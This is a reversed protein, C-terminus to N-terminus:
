GNQDEPIKPVERSIIKCVDNYIIVPGSPDTTMQVIQTNLDLNEAKWRPLELILKLKCETAELLGELEKIREFPAKRLKEEAEYKEASKNRRVAYTDPHHQKCYGDKVAKRSCQHWRWGSSDQVDKRCYKKDIM